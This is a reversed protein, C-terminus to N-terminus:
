KAEPWNEAQVDISIQYRCAAKIAEKKSDENFGSTIINNRWRYNEGDTVIIYGEPLTDCPENKVCGFLGISLIVTLLVAIKQKM